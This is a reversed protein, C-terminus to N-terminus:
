RLLGLLEGGSAVPGRRLGGSAEDVPYGIVLSCTDAGEAAAGQRKIGLRAIAHDESKRAWLLPARLAECCARVVEAFRDVLKARSVM